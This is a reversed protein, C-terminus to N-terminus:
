LEAENDTAARIDNLAGALTATLMERALKDTSPVSRSLMLAGVCKAVLNIALARREAAGAPTSAPLGREFDRIMGEIGRAFARKVDEPQRAADAGLAAAPCGQGIASSHTRTLYRRLVESADAAQSLDASREQFAFDTAKAALEEKSQFHNYFGGHTFGASQMLDAISVGDFGRERFLEAASEVVLDHNRQVQEKSIRM